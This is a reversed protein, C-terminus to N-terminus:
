MAMRFYLVGVSGCGVNFGACVFHCLQVSCFQCPKTKSLSVLSWHALMLANCYASDLLTPPQMVICM